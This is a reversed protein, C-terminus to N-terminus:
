ILLCLLAIGFIDLYKTGIQYSNQNVTTKSPSPNSYEQCGSKQSDSKLGCIRNENSAKAKSCIEETVNKSDYLEYCTPKDILTCAGNSYSCRQADNSVTIVSCLNAISDVKFDSCKKNVTKCSKDNVDYQCKKNLYDKDNNGKIIISECEDKTITGQDEKYEECSKYQEVCSNGNFICMKHYNSPNIKACEIESKAESCEKRKENCYGEDLFYKTQFDNMSQISECVEKDKGKYNFCNKYNYTKIEACKEDVIGCEHDNSASYKRCITPDKGKYDSCPRTLTECSGSEDNYYCKEYELANNVSECGEKTVGDEGVLGVYIECSTIEIPVSTCKKDKM